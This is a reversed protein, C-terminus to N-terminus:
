SNNKSKYSNNVKFLTYSLTIEKTGKTAPDKVIKPDIYYAVNFEKTEGPNITQKEFCFCALKKFHIGVSPPSTNFTSVINKKNNSLNKVKFIINGIEGIKIENFTKEPMFEFSLDASVNSDFRVKIIKDITEPAYNETKQITGGFGTVRCFLDYLPVSAFSLGIMAMVLFVLYRPNIKFKKKM